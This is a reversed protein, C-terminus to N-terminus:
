FSSVVTHICGTANLQAQFWFLKFWTASASVVRCCIIDYIMWMWHRQANKTKLEIWKFVRRIFDFTYWQPLPLPVHCHTAFRLFWDQSCAAIPRIVCQWDCSLLCSSTCANPQKQQHRITTVASEEGSDSDSMHSLGLAESTHTIWLFLFRLVIPFVPTHCLDHTPHSSTIDHHFDWTAGTELHTVTIEKTEKSCLVTSSNDTVQPRQSRETWRTWTVHCLLLHSGTHLLIYVCVPFIWLSVITATSCRESLSLKHWMDCYLKCM